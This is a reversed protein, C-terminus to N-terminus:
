QDISIYAVTLSGHVQRPKAAAKKVKGATETASAAADGAANQVEEKVHAASSSFTESGWAEDLDLEACTTRPPSDSFEFM